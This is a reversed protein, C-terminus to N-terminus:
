EFRQIIFSCCYCMSLAVLHARNAMMVLCSQAVGEEESLTTYLIKDLSSTQSNKSGDDIASTATLKSDKDVGSTAQSNNSGGDAASM